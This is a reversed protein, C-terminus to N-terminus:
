KKLTLTYDSTAISFFDGAVGMGAKDDPAEVPWIMSGDFEMDASAGNATLVATGEGTIELTFYAMAADEGIEAALDDFTHTQEDMTMSHFYYVDGVAPGEEQYEPYDYEPETPEEEEEYYSPEPYDYEEEPATTEAPRVAVEGREDDEDQKKDDEEDDKNDKDDKDEDEDEDSEKEFILTIEGNDEFTVTVTGKKENIDLEFKEDEDDANWIEDDEWEMDMKDGDIKMVATGDEDIEIYSDDGYEEEMDEKSMEEGDEEVSTLLYKGSIGDEEAEKKDDTKSEKNGCAALTFVMALALLLSLLKKM